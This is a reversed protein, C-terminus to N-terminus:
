LLVLFGLSLVISTIIIARGTGVLTLRTAEDVNKGELRYRNNPASALTEKVPMLMKSALM